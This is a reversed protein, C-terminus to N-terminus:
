GAAHQLQLSMTYKFTGAPHVSRAVEIVRGQKNLYRRVTELASTQRRVGLLAAEDSNLHVAAIEQRIEVMPEHFHQEILAFVPQLSSQAQDLAPGYILPVFIENLVAPKRSAEALRLTRMRWWSEGEKCGLYQALDKGVVQQSRDLIKRQLSNAYQLLDQSSGLSQTYRAEFQERRVTTGIGQRSFVLGASHLTRLANRVTHRSVGFLAGLEAETPLTDGVKLVGDRIQAALTDAVLAHKARSPIAIPTNM